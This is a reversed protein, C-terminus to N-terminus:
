ENVGLIFNIQRKVGLLRKFTQRHAEPPLGEARIKRKLQDVQAEISDVLVAAEEHELLIGFKVGSM